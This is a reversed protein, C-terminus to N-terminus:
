SSVTFDLHFLLFYLWCQVKYGVRGFHPYLNSIKSLDYLQLDMSSLELLM